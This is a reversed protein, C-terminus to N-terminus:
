RLYKKQSTLLPNKWKRLQKLITNLLQIKRKILTLSILILILILRLLISTIPEPQKVVEPEVVEDHVYLSDHTLSGSRDVPEDDTDPILNLERLINTETDGSDRYGKEVNYAKVEELFDKLYENEFTDFVVKEKPETKEFPKEEERAHVPAHDKTSKVDMREFQNDIMNLRNAFNSLDDNVVTDDVTNDIKEHLEKYREVRSKM